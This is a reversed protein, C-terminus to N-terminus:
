LLISKKDSWEPLRFNLNPRAPIIDLHPGYQTGKPPDLPAGGAEEDRRDGSSVQMGQSTAREEVKLAMQLAHETKESRLKM